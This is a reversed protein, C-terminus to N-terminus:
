YLNNNKLYNFDSLFEYKRLNTEKQLIHNCKKVSNRKGMENYIETPMLDKKSLFGKTRDVEFFFFFSIPHIKYTVSIDSMIDSVKCIVM